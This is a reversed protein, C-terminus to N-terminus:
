EIGEEKLIKNWHLSRVPAPAAEIWEDGIIIGCSEGEYAIVVDDDPLDKIFEKLERVTTM